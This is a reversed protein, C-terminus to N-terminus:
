EIQEVFIPSPLADADTVEFYSIRAPRGAGALELLQFGRNYWGNNLGLTLEPSKLPVPFKQAYPAESQQVPIASHGACRGKPLTKFTQLADASNLPWDAVRYNDQYIGLNHEHGWIWAAVKNGFTSGM